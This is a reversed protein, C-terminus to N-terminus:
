KKTQKWDKGKRDKKMEDIKKLQEATLINKREAKSAEKIAKAQEHKQEKSLSENEKLAKLKAHTAENHAKLKSAQDNSLALDTKMKEFRKAQMETRQQEHKAKSEAMKAKQEPTLMAQMKAKQEEHLAQKKENFEKVSMNQNQKLQNMKTKYEERNTKMQAKQADSFNLDKMGQGDRQHKGGKHMGKQMDHKQKGERKEQATASFTIATIAIIALLKKM